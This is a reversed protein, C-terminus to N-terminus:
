AGGLLARAFQRGAEEQDAESCYADAFEYMSMNKIDSLEFTLASIKRNLWKCTSTIDRHEKRLVANEKQLFDNDIKLSQNEERLEELELLINKINAM